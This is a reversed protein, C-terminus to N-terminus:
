SLTNPLINSIYKFEHSTVSLRLLPIFLPASSVRVERPPQTASIEVRFDWEDMKCLELRFRKRDSYCSEKREKCLSLKGM